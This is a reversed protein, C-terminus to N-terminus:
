PIIPAGSMRYQQVTLGANRKFFRSFYAPDSFGLQYCIEKGTLTSFILLRKVEQLLRENILKKPSNNSINRCILNLRSESIGMQGTYKSLPWHECYHEEILDTFMRFLRLGESSAKTSEAPKSSLRAIQVILMRCLNELMLTRAPHDSDWELKLNDFTQEVQLWQRNLADDYGSPDLCVGEKLNVTKERQLGDKMLQWILAQHITLVHGTTGDQTMFSHPVSAPTMFCAPGCVSYIRDDIHFSIDGENIYHIQMYQVHRHVPMDRSFFGALNELSEYHIPADAYRLDYDKGLVINPIWDNHGAVAAQKEM